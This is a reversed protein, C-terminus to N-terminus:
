ISLLILVTYYISLHIFRYPCKSGQSFNIKTRHFRIVTTTTPKFKWIRQPYPGKCKYAVKRNPYIIRHLDYKLCCENKKFILLLGYNKFGACAYHLFLAQISRIGSWIRGAKSCYLEM